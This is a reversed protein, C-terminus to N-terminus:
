SGEPQHNSAESITTNQAVLIPYTEMRIFM